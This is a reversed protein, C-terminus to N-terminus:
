KLTRFRKYCNKTCATRRSRQGSYIYDFKLLRYAFIYLLDIKVLPIADQKIDLKKRHAPKFKIFKWKEGLEKSDVKGCKKSVIILIM